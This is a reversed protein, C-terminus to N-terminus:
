RTRSPPEVVLRHARLIRAWWPRGASTLGPAPVGKLSVWGGPGMRIGGVAPAPRRRVVVATVVAAALVVAALAEVDFAPRYRVTGGALLYAGVPRPHTRGRVVPVLTVPEPRGLEVPPGVPTNQEAPTGPPTSQEAPPGAPPIPDDPPHLLIEPM